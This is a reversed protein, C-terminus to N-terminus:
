NINNKEWNYNLFSIDANKKVKVRSYQNIYDILSGKATFDSRFWNFISSLEVKNVNLINKNKGNVFRIAAQELQVDLHAAEFASKQLNPCSKAGCVLAFHIRPDKMKRLIQHEIKALSYCEDVVKILPLDWVKKIDKISGVSNNEILLRLVLANYMNIWYSKRDNASWNEAFPNVLSLLQLYNQVSDSNGMGQYDVLGNESVHESLIKTFYDHKIIASVGSSELPKLQLFSVGFVLLLYILPLFAELIRVM